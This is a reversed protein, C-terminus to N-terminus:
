AGGGAPADDVWRELEDPTPGEERRRKLDEIRTPGSSEFFTVIEAKFEDDAALYRLAEDTAFARDRDASLADRVVPPLKLMLAEFPTV